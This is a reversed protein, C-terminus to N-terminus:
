AADDLIPWEAGECDMKLLDVTGGLRSIANAIATITINGDDSEVTAGELTPGGRDMTAKSAHRGVGENFVQIQLNSTNAEIVSKLGPNPEYCHIIANPLFHRALIAFLGVNGGIDLVTRVDKPVQRLQYPDDHYLHKIEWQQRDFEGPPFHLEIDIGQITLSRISVSSRVPFIGLPWWRARDQIRILLPAIWRASISSLWNSM